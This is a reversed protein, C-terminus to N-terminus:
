PGISHMKERAAEVVRDPQNGFAEAMERHQALTEEKSLALKADRTQHAAIQPPGRARSGTRPWTSKSKSAARARHRWISPATVGFRQREARGQRSRM